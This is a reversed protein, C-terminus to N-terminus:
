QVPVGDERQSAAGCDPQRAGVEINEDAAFGGGALLVRYQGVCNHHVTGIPLGIATGM